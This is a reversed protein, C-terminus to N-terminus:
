PRKEVTERPLRVAVLQRRDRALFWEGDLAPGARVASGLIQARCLPKWETGSAEAVILEGSELLVVLTQGALLVSGVGTRPSEWQLRGTSAEICHLAAGQEQRGHFGYIWGGSRVPSSIHASLTDDNTWVPEIAGGPTWRLLAAGTNYSSTVFIGDPGVLPTAANVSAQQRARWPLAALVKGDSPDLVRVGARNFVIIRPLGGFLGIVPSAYGAEDETSKWLRKGSAADLAVVGAGDEGGLQVIVRNSVVLPSCAFGFFGKDARTEKGLPVTWGPKGDMLRVASLRGEAGFTYVWEGAICPTGRPGDDFGFDDTYGTPQVAQWRSKGTARDFAELIERDERRHHLLVLDGATVPGSFGNGVGVKWATVPGAAPWPTM